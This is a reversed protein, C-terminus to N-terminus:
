RASRQGNLERGRGMNRTAKRYLIYWRKVEEPDYFKYRGLTEKPEPFGNGEKRAWESLQHSSVDCWAMQAIESLPELTEYSM